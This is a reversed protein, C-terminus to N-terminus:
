GAVEPTPKGLVMAGSAAAALRKDVTPVDPGVVVAYGARGLFERPPLRLVTGRERVMHVAHVWPETALNRDVEVDELVLDCPPYLFRIGVLQRPRWVSGPSRGLTVSGVIEGVSLGPCALQALWPILDGGLRGNVEVVRPGRSTLRLETHTVCRDVGLAHNARVVVDHVAAATADDLVDGAVHGVEEFYPAFGTRKLATAYPVVKGDLVWCDVSIEEGDLYEEVLVREDRSGAAAHVASAFAADLERASAAVRVGVSAARSLPKVVVPFGIERAARRAEELASVPAYRASPVGDHAFALRQVAKDRCAAAALPPIAPAGLEAGVRASLELLREEWTVVGGVSRGATLAAAAASVADADDLDAVVHAAVYPLQWDVPGGNLLLVECREALGRLVYQRFEQYGSGIVLVTDGM